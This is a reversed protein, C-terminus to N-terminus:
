NTASASTTPSTTLRPTELHSGVGEADVQALAHKLLMTGVGSRQAPPDACLVDLVVASGQSPRAAAGGHVSQGDHHVPATSLLDSAFLAGPAAARTTAVPLRRNDVVGRGRLSTPTTACPSSEVMNAWTRTSPAFFTRYDRDDCRTTPCCTRSFRITSSPAVPCPCWPRCIPGSWRDKMSEVNHCECNKGFNVDRRPLILFHSHAFLALVKLAPGVLGPLDRAEANETVRGILGPGTRLVADGVLASQGVDAPGV